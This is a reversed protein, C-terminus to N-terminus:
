LIRLISPSYPIKNQFTTGNYEFAGIDYFSGTPRPTGDFDTLLEVITQGVDVDPSTSTLHFDNSLINEFKPDVQWLDNPYPSGAPPSGDSIFHSNSRVITGINSATDKYLYPYTHRGVDYFLNNIVTSNPSNHLEIGYASGKTYTLDAKFTNNIIKTNAVNWVNLGRFVIFVNNRVTLNEVPSNTGEIMFGQMGDDRNDCFNQEFLINYAPGYTQFCDIHPNINEPDKLSIDHIRNKRITHGSGFFHIGDADAYSPPNIWKPPYQWVHSIDNGEVLHNRGYIEIGALGCRSIRNGKITCNSTTPSDDGGAAWVQIGVRTVDDIINSLLEIYQGKVSIGAGDEFANITDTIKFGQVRIFNANITFGRCIAAGPQEAQYTIMQGPSGSRVVQVREAYNGPLMICTDGGILIGAAKQITRLPFDRSIGANQDNGNTADIYYTAGWSNSVFPSIALIIIISVQIKFLSMLVKM